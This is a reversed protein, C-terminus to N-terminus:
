LRAASRHRWPMRLDLPVLPRAVRRAARSHWPGERRARGAPLRARGDLFLEPQLRRHGPPSVRSFACPHALPLSTCSPTSARRRVRMRRAHAEGVFAAWDDDTGLLPDVETANYISFGEYLEDPGAWVPWDINVVSYGDAQLSPLLAALQKLTCAGSDGSGNNTTAAAAGSCRYRRPMLAREAFNTSLWWPADAPQDAREYTDYGEDQADCKAIDLASRRWCGGHAATPAAATLVHTSWEGGGDACDAIRIDSRACCAGSSASWVVGSCIDKELFCQTQCEALTMSFCTESSGKPPPASPLPVATAGAGPYCNVDAHTAWQIDVSEHVIGACGSTNVCLAQCAALSMNGAAAHDIPLGGHNEYCNLGGHRQWSSAAAMSSSTAAMSSSIATVSTMLEVLLADARRRRFGSRGSHHASTAALAKIQGCDHRAADWEWLRM